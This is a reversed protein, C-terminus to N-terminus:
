TPRRRCRGPSASSPKTLDVSLTTTTRDRRRTQRVGSRQRRRRDGRVQVQHRVPAGRGHLQHREPRGHTHVFRSQHKAHQGYYVYYGAVDSDDVAKWRVKVRGESPTSVNTTSVGAPLIPARLSGIRFIKVLVTNSRSATTTGTCDPLPM